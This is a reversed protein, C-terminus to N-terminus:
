VGTGSDSGGDAAPDDACKGNANLSVADVAYLAVNQVRCTRQLYLSAHVRAPDPVAKVPVGPPTVEPSLSVRLPTNLQARVVSVDDIELALGDSFDEYDGGNQIRLILQNGRYPVAAFFDPKLDFGGAWCDPIDLEGSVSGKGEGLSCGPAIASAIAAVM